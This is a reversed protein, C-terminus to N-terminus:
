KSYHESSDKLVKLEGMERTSKKIKKLHTNNQNLFRKVTLFGDIDEKRICELLHM